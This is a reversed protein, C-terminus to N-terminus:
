LSYGNTNWWGTKLFTADAPRLLRRCFHYWINTFCHIKSSGHWLFPGNNTMKTCPLIWGDPDTFTKIFHPQRPWQPWQPQQPQQPWQPQLPELAQFIVIPSKLTMWTRSNLKIKINQFSLIKPYFWSTDLQFKAGKRDSATSALRHLKKSFQNIFCLHTSRTVM